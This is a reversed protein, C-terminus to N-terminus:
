MYSNKYELLTKDLLDFLENHKCRLTITSFSFPTDHYKLNSVMTRKTFKSSQKNIFFDPNKVHVFLFNNHSIKKLSFKEIDEWKIIEDKFNNINLVIGQNSILLAPKSSKLMALVKFLVFGFLLVGAIGIIRIIQPDKIRSTPAPNIAFYFCCVVFLLVLLFLIFTKIKSHYIEVEFIKM